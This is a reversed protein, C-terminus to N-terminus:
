EVDLNDKLLEAMDVFEGRRIKAVLKPPVVPLGDGVKFPPLSKVLSKKGKAIIIGGDEESQQSVGDSAGGSEVSIVNVGELAGSPM